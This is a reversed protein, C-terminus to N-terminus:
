RLMSVVGAVVFTCGGLGLLRRWPNVGRFLEDVAWGALAAERVWDIVTRAASGAPAVGRLAITAIFIWLPLNPFQAITIRGTRRNRFFWALLSRTLTYFSWARRHSIPNENRAGPDPQPESAPDSM